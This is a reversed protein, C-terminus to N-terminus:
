RECYLLLHACQKALTLHSSPDIKRVPPREIGIQIIQHIRLTSGFADFVRRHRLLVIVKRLQEHLHVAHQQRQRQHRVHPPERRQSRRQHPEHKQRQVLNPPIQFIRKFVRDIIHRQGRNRCRNLHIQPLQQTFSNQRLRLLRHTPHKPLLPVHQSTNATSFRIEGSRQERPFESCSRDFHRKRQRRSPFLPLLLNRREAAFHCVFPCGPTTPATDVKVSEDASRADEIHLPHLNYQRPLEDLKPDNADDLQYWPM